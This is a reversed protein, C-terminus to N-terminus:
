LNELMFRLYDLFKIWFDATFISFFFNEFTEFLRNIRVFWNEKFPDFLGFSSFGALVWFTIRFTLYLITPLIYIYFFRIRQEKSSRKPPNVRKIKDKNKPNKLREKDKSMAFIPLPKQVGKLRYDGVHRFFMGLRNIKSISIAIQASRLSLLTQGPDALCMIRAGIAKQLGEVEIPKAGRSIWITSNSHMMVVGCHISVRSKFGLHKEVLRHYEQTYNIADKMNEFLLLAGDTKDIEIGAYKVLLGRFIRDYVKFTKAANFDGVREVFRTSNAIDILVLIAFTPEIKGM